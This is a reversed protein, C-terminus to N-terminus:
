EFHAWKFQADGLGSIVVGKLNENQVWNETYFYIPAVPMENVIIEEADKLLQLRAAPDSESAAQELLSNYEESTWGTDNNGAPETYLELFNVPDNFDGLWGMRAIQFDGQDVKDLYVGWEANEITVDVGLNQKWMDQIAQAIKQHGESTNFSLTIPPLETLGLEQLGLALHEKAKELDNDKFYGEKNEEIMTPPVLAMAPMQGGQTINDVIAQRNISYAFAKRINVNDFPAKLTNFKYWYTGAIVKTQLKGESRLQPIADTPLASMPAGAWDLEGNQFSKLETNADEIMDISIKTLKVTEADWYNENKELVLKSSDKSALVFPGNSVYAEGADKAWDANEQAIKSNVPFYTYFATLELFFPTPNKLSVELTKEDLAKIGVEDMSVTGDYAEKANLVHSYIQYAYDAQNAPDLVWKWAYEFDQATVADGNSWKADRLTFTYTKGDESVDIKEAMAEQPKGDQGIRTLGEFVHNAILGSTSDSALGPNLTPPESTINIRLEQPKDAAGEGKDAADDKDAGPAGCAALILSFVLLLSMMISYKNNM